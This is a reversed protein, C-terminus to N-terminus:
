TQVGRDIQECAVGLAAIFAALILAGVGADAFNSMSAVAVENAHRRDEGGGCSTGYAMVASVGYGGFLFVAAVVLLVAACYAAQPGFRPRRPRADPGTTDGPTRYPHEVSGAELM